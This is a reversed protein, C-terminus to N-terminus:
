GATPNAPRSDDHGDFMAYRGHRIRVFLDDNRRLLDQTSHPEGAADRGLREVLHSHIEKPSASDRESLLAKVAELRATADKASDTSAVDLLHQITQAETKACELRANLECIRLEISRLQAALAEEIQDRTSPASRSTTPDVPPPDPLRALKDSPM